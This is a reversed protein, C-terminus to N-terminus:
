PTLTREWCDEEEVGEGGEEEGRMGKMEKRIEPIETKLVLIFVGVM